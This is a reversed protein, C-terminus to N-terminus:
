KAFQDYCASAKVLMNDPNNKFSLKNDKICQRIEKKRAKYVNLLDKKRNIRYYEHNMKIYYYKKNEIFHLVGESISSVDENVIKVEQKLVSVNGEYLINYFGTSVPSSMLSDKVIRIFHNDLITFRSIRENILQIQHAKDQFIIINSVEDYLLHVDPYFVNDYVISGRAPEDAYFFPHGEKFKFPYSGYQTGNYLGSQEGIHQHYLAVANSIAKSLFISDAASLQATANIAFFSFSIILLLNRAAITIGM